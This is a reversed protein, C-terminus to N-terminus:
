YTGTSAILLEVSDLDSQQWDAGSPTGTLREFLYGFSTGPNQITGLLDTSSLRSGLVIQETAGTRKTRVTPIIAEIYEGAGLTFTTMNYSDLKNTGTVLVYDSDSPPREDVLQYNNTSDGDSGLWQSYNGDANPTIAYFRLIPPASPSGEGTANDLYIDDLYVAGYADAGSGSNPGWHLTDIDANGTNGDFSLIETGDLYIRVWGASSDIKIDYGLHYYDNTPLDSYSDQQTGLIELLAVTSSPSLRIGVHVTAGSRVRFIRVSTGSGAAGHRYYFGGRIQRTGTFNKYVNIGQSSSLQNLHYTGTKPLSTGISMTSYTIEALSGTEFGSQWRRVISM